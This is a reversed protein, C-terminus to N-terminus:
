NRSPQRRNHKRPSTIAIASTPASETKIKSVLYLVSLPTKKGLQCSYIM